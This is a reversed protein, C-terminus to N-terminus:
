SGGEPAGADADVEADVDAGGYVDKNLDALTEGLRRKEDENLGGGANKEMAAALALWHRANQRYGTRPDSVSSGKAALGSLRYATMGRFYAYQARETTTLSDFDPELVRFLALAPEFENADYHRRARELDSRYTYCGIAAVAFLALVIRPLGRM